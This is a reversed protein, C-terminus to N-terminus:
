RMVAKMDVIELMGKFQKARELVSLKETEKKPKTEKIKKSAVKKETKTEM